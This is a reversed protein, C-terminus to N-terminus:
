VASNDFVYSWRSNTTDWYALKGGADNIAIVSGVAGSPLSGSAYNGVTMVASVSLNGTTSVNGTNLTGVTTTGTVDLNGNTQITSGSDENLIAYKNTITVGTMTAWGDTIHLGMANTIAHGTISTNGSFLAGGLLRANTINAVAGTGQGTIGMSVFQGTAYQVTITSSAAPNVAVIGSQGVAHSVSGSTGITCAGQQGVLIPANRSATSMTGWTFTNLAVDLDAAQGRWRDNNLMNETAHLQFGNRVATWVSNGSTSDRSQVSVNGQTGFVALGGTTASTTPDRYNLAAAHGGGGFNTGDSFPYHRIRVAGATSSSGTTTLTNHIIGGRVNINGGFAISGDDPAATIGTASNIAGHGMIIYPATNAITTNNVTIALDQTSAGSIVTTQTGDGVAIVNDALQLGGTSSSITYSGVDLNGGLTPSTDYSIDLPEMTWVGTSSEYRLFDNDASPGGNVNDLGELNGQHTVRVAIIGSAANKKTVAGIIIKPAPATPRTATLGGTTTPDYYLLDGANFSNTNIDTVEGLITVFGFNNTSFNEAAIGFVWDPIFGAANDDALKFLIHDGQVGGYMVVQGKNITETAKGYLVNHQGTNLIMDNLGISVTERNANWYIKGVANAEAAATDLQVADTSVVDVNSINYSMADLNGGLQPTTDEVVNLLATTAVTITSDDTRTVTIGTGEALKVDDTVTDSGTLRINAGSTATEASVAYTTNTDVVTETGTTVAQVHGFDDFTIGSVYTRSTATVNAVSSTDAHSFVTGALGLGSGATYTTDTDTSSVTITNADTRSVTTAGSGVISVDDTSADTGTLRLNAGGTATEASVAYTTNTDVVTTAITIVNADTRTVTIGTGEALTVDDTITGDTLRLNAGGTTTEASINYTKGLGDASTISTADAFIIGQDVNAFTINGDLTGGTLELKDTNLNTFNDDLEQYTLEAGKGARTTITTM